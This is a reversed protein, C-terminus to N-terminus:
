VRNACLFTFQTEQEWHTATAQAQNKEIIAYGRVCKDHMCRDNHQWTRNDDAKKLRNCAM